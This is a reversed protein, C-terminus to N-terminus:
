VDERAKLAMKSIRNRVEAATEEDLAPIQHTTAATSVTVDSLNYYRLIPGKRTDVHQVRNVPVLTRRVIVLGRQLEVEHENVDYRWRKWRWYPVFATLLVSLILWFVFFVIGVWFPMVHQTDMLWFLLLGLGLIASQILGTIRWASVATAPLRNTPQTNMSSFYM